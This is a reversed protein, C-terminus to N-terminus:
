KASCSSNSRTSIDWGFRNQDHRGVTAEHAQMEALGTKNSDSLKKAAVGKHLIESPPHGQRQVSQTGMRIVKGVSTSLQVVTGFRASSLATLTTLRCHTDFVSRAEFLRRLGHFSSVLSRPCRSFAIHLQERAIPRASDRFAFSWALWLSTERGMDFGRPTYGISAKTSAILFYNHAYINLGLLVSAASWCTCTHVSASGTMTHM